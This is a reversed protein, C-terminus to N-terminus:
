AGAPPLRGLRAWLPGIGLAGVPGMQVVWTLTAFALADATGVGFGALVGVASAAGGAALSPPLVVAALSGVALVSSAALMPMPPDLGLAPLLLRLSLVVLGVQLLALLTNGALSPLAALGKGTDVVAQRLWAGPGGGPTPAAPASLRRGVLVLAVAAFVVFVTVLTLGSTARAVEAPGLLEGFREAQTLALLLLFAGFVAAEIVSTIGMAALAATAPVRAERHLLGVGLLDGGRAPLVNNVLGAVLGISLVRRLPPPRGWPLLAVWLRAERALVAGAKALLALALWSEDVRALADRVESWRAERVLLALVLASGALQVVLLLRRRKM